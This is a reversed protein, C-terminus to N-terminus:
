DDLSLERIIAHSHAGLDALRPEASSGPLCQAM